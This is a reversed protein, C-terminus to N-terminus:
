AEGGNEPMDIIDPVADDTTVDEVSQSVQGDFSDYLVKLLAAYQVAKISADTILACQDGIYKLSDTRADLYDLPPDIRGISDEISRLEKWLRQRTAKTLRHIFKHFKGSDPVSSNSVTNCWAVEGAQRNGRAHCM